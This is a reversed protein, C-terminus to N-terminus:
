AINFNLTAALDGDGEQDFGGNSTGTKEAITAGDKVVSIKFNSPGTECNFFHLVKVKYTGKVLDVSPKYGIRERRTTPPTEFCSAFQDKLLVGKGTTEFISVINGDPEEVVVDMDDFTNWELVIEVQSVFVQFAVCGRDRSRIKGNSDEWRGVPMEVCAGDLRNIASRPAVGTYGIASKYPSNRIGADTVTFFNAFFTNRPVGPFSIKSIPRFKNSGQVRVRAQRTRLIRRVRLVGVSDVDRTCIPETMPFFRKSLSAATDFEDCFRFPCYSNCEFAQQQLSRPIARNQARSNIRERKLRNSREFPAEAYALGLLTCLLLLISFKM